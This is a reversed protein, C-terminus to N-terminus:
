EGSAACWGAIDLRQFRISEYPTEVGAEYLVGVAGDGLAALDSYASPGEYLVVPESWALGDDVSLRVGLGVRQSSDTPSTFLLPTSPLGDM